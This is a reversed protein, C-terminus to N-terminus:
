SFHLINDQCFSAATMFHLQESGKQTEFMNLYCSHRHLPDTTQTLPGSFIDTTHSIEMHVPSGAKSNQIFICRM